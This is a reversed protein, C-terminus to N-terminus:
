AGTDQVNGRCLVEIIDEIDTSSRRQKTLLLDRQSLRKLGTQDDEEKDSADWPDATWSDKGWPNSVVNSLDPQDRITFVDLCDKIHSSQVLDQPLTKLPAEFETQTMPIIFFSTHARSNTTLGTMRNYLSELTVRAKKEEHKFLMHLSVLVPATGPISGPVERM